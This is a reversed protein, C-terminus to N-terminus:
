HSASRWNKDAYRIFHYIRRSLLNTEKMLEIAEASLDEHIVSMKELHCELELSSAHAIRLFRLFVARYNKRGYGEVINTIISDSARRTQSGLEYTEYKPLKKTLRHIKSYVRMADAHIELDRYSSPM